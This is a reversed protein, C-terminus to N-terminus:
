YDTHSSDNDYVDGLYDVDDYIDGELPLLLSRSVYGYKGNQNRCLAKKSNTLQIVDLIEGQSVLLDKTGPKKIISNPDVMMTHLVRLPGDYKFKKRLDKEKKPDISIELPPPPFDENLPRVDDYDDDDQLMSDRNNLDTNSMQPPDPPPPPLSSTDMKRSQLVKRKVAEYDIDVCTNSIYGYSGNLSRALWKGGPNNKVRVIEVSEGQRVSLELKGGGYWDHRVKATHIVDVEGELQFNKRLENERKQREMQEKREQERQKKADKKSTKIDKARNVEVHDEDISEYVDDNDGDLCQSSNDSLSENKEFSAIDDYDQDDVIDMSATQRPLRSPKISREPPKPPSMVSIKRGTSGPSDDSKRSPPLAPRRSFRMFPELNVNPPRKPKLPLPGEPPLPKMLPTVEGGSRQRSQQRLPVPNSAPAPAPLQPLAPPLSPIPAPAPGLPPKIGAPRQHRLMMTQLMEGTQKVKTADTQQISSRVAPNPPPRTFTNPRPPISAMPEIRPLRVPGPGAMPPPIIPSLRHHALNNETVPLIVRGFSPRPSKPSNSDRSSADSTNAKSNFRARLAKVDVNEEM